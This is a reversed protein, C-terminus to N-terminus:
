KLAAQARSDPPPAPRVVPPPVVSPTRLDVAPAPKGSQSMLVLSIVVVVAGGVGGVLIWPNTPPKPAAPTTTSSSTIILNARSSDRIAPLAAGTKRQSTGSGKKEKGALLDRLKQVSEPPLSKVAEPACGACIAFNDIRYAKGQEFQSDRLQTSCRFCYLIAQGM